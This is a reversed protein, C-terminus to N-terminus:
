RFIELAHGGRADSTFSVHLLTLLAANFIRVMSIVRDCLLLKVEFTLEKTGLAIYVCAICAAVSILSFHLYQSLRVHTKQSWLCSSLRCLDYNGSGTTQFCCVASLVGSTLGIDYLMNDYIMSYCGSQMM